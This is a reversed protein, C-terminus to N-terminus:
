QGVKALVQFPGAYRPGLKGSRTCTRVYDRVITRDHPIFFDVRLQVLTRQIGEHTTSHALQLATPVLASSATPYMRRGHLVLGDQVRWPDGLERGCDEHMQQMEANDQVERRIDDYLRFTPSSIMALSGEESDRHFFADAITNLRSPRYEMTFDFGFLKSIWQHQPVTSLRQDLMLKQSYHDTRIIFRHGWLYPWWHRM